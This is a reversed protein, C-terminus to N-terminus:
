HLHSARWNADTWDHKLASYWIHGSGIPKAIFSCLGQPYHECQKLLTKARTVLERCDLTDGIVVVRSAKAMLFRKLQMDRNGKIILRQYHRLSVSSAPRVTTGIVLFPIHREKCVAMVKSEIGYRDAVLFSWGHRAM